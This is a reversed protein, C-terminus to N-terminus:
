HGTLIATGDRADGGTTGTASQFFVQGSRARDGSCQGGGIGWGNWIDSGTWGFQRDTGRYSIVTTGAALTDGSEGVPANITYAVAYFSANEAVGESLDDQANHTITAHGVRDSSAVGLGDPDGQGGDALGSDYGRNYADMSLIALFLDKSINM